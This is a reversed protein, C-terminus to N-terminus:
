ISSRDYAAYRDAQLLEDLHHVDALLFALTQPDYYKMPILQVRLNIIICSM